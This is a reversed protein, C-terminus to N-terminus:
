MWRISYWCISNITDIQRFFSSVDDWELITQPVIFDFKNPNKESFSKDHTDEIWAIFTCNEEYKWKSFSNLVKICIVKTVTNDQKRNSITTEVSTRDVM